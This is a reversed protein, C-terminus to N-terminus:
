RTAPTAPRPWASSCRPTRARHRVAALAPRRGGAPATGTATSNTSLVLVLVTVPRCQRRARDGDGVHGRPRVIGTRAGCRSGRRGPRGVGDADGVHERRRRRHRDAHGIYDGAGAYTHSPDAQTSTGGDGFNWAARHHDGDTDESGASSFTCTLGGCASRHRGDAAPQRRGASRRSRHVAGAVGRAATSAPRRGRGRVRGPEAGGNNWPRAACSAPRARPGSSGAARSSARRLRRLVRSAVQVRQEQGVIGSDLSFPRSYLGAFGTRTYYLRGDEFVMSSVRRCSATSPRCWAGTSTRSSTSGGRAPSCTAGRRTTTRTSWSTRGSPPATSPGRHLYYDGNAGPYGYFLRNGAMFAGRPRAGSCGATQAPQGGRRDHRRVVPVAVDDVASRRRRAPTPARRDRDGLHDPQEILPASTSTSRRRRRHGPVVEDHRRRPRRRGVIDYFTLRPRGRHWTSCGSAPGPRQRPVRNAFYLRM